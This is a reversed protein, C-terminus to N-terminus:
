RRIVRENRGGRVIIQRIDRLRIDSLYTAVTVERSVPTSAPQPSRPAAVVFRFALVGPAPAAGDADEEAVLEADWWGQTPPLGAARLIAGGPIREIELLTVQDVLARNDFVAPGYGQEPALTPERVESRGFWNFPNLRSERVAGCAGLLILAALAALLPTRM